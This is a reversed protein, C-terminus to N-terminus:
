PCNPFGQTTYMGVRQVLKDVFYAEAKKHAAMPHGRGGVSFWTSWVWEARGVFSSGDNWGGSECAMIAYARNRRWSPLRDFRRMHTCEWSGYTRVCWNWARKEHVREHCEKTKCRAQAIETPPISLFAILAFLSIVRKM